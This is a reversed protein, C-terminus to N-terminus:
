RRLYSASAALANSEASNTRSFSRRNRRPRGSVHDRRRDPHHLLNHWDLYPCSQIRRSRLSDRRCPLRATGVTYTGAGAPQADEALPALKRIEPLVARVTVRIGEITLSMESAQGRLRSDLRACEDTRDKASSSLVFPGNRYCLRPLRSLLPDPCLILPGSGNRSCVVCGKAV